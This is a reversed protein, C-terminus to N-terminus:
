CFIFYVIEYFSYADDIEKIENLSTMKTTNKVDSIEITGDKSVLINLPKLNLHVIKHSHTFSLIM